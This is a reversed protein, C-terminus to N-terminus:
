STTPRIKELEQRVRKDIGWEDHGSGQFNVKVRLRKGCSCVTTKYHFTKDFESQWRIDTVPARCYICSHLQHDETILHHVTM